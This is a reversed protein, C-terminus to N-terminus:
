EDLNPRTMFVFEISAFQQVTERVTEALDPRAIFGQKEWFRQSGQVSLLSADRWEMKRGIALIERVMRPALGQGRAAPALALDHLFLTRSDAPIEPLIVNLPPLSEAMWPHAILYGLPESDEAMLCTRPSWRWLSQLTEIGELMEPPYAVRQLRDVAPWDGETIERIVAPNM